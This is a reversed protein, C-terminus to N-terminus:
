VEGRAAVVAQNRGLQKARYLAKDAKDVIEKADQQAVPILCSVGISVTIYSAATSYEHRLKADALLTRIRAAVQLAGKTDTNPLVMVFEEGGYRAVIDDERQLAQEFLSAVKSLCQDGAVHGYHDNYPKFFDVDILLLSLSTNARSSLRWHLALTQEFIARNYLGTLADRESQERMLAQSNTLEAVKIRNIAANTASEILWGKARKLVLNLQLWSLILLGYAIWEIQEGGVLGAILAMFIPLCFGNFSRISLLSPLLVSSFLGAVGLLMLLRQQSTLEPIFLLIGVAWLVGKSTFLSFHRTFLLSPSVDAQVRLVLPLSASVLLMCALWAFGLWSGTDPSFLLWWLVSNVATVLAMLRGNSLLYGVNEANVQQQM